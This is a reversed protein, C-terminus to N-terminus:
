ARARAAGVRRPAAVSEREILTPQFLFEGTPVGADALRGVLREVITVAMAPLPLQVTTLAPTVLASLFLGDIGIVSVDRPVALGADRLGAMLGYALMDNVAIVGTPRQRLAALRLAEARGLEAMEADGYESRTHGDVVMADAELGAAACAARFGRIKESRSMTQGAATVFALRQHGHGILCETALRAAEANDVSVHDVRSDSGPSARRDVSVVVLGRDVARELHREDQLSSIVVVGRVGHELLDQFFGAEKDPDRYTNGLVVRLGHREQAVSEIERAVAGYMPNAISPVLLGLMGAQGTKLQRAARNPRFGLLAIAAEVRALTERGMRDARGNLVNSVTSVSVRAHRAVDQITSM